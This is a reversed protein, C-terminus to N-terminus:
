ETRRSGSHTHRCAPFRPAPSSRFYFRSASNRVGAIVQLPSVGFRGANESAVLGPVLTESIIQIIEAALRSCGHGGAATVEHRHVSKM